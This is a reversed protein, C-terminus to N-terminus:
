VTTGYTCFVVRTSDSDLTVDEPSALDVRVSGSDTRKRQGWNSLTWRHATGDASSRGGTASPAPRPSDPPDDSSSSPTDLSDPGGKFRGIGSDDPSAHSEEIGRLISQCIDSELPIPDDSDRNNVTVAIHAPHPIPLPIVMKDPSYPRSHKKWPMWLITKTSRKLSGPMASVDENKDTKKGTPSSKSRPNFASVDLYPSHVQINGRPTYVNGLLDPGGAGLQACQVMETYRSLDAQPHPDLRFSTDCRDLPTLVDLSFLESYLLGALGAWDGPTLAKGDWFQDETRGLKPFVHTPYFRELMMAGQQIAIKLEPMSLKVKSKVTVSLGTQLDRRRRELKEHLNAM